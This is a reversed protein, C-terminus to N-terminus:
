AAEVYRDIVATLQDCYVDDVSKVMKISPRRTKWFEIRYTDNWMLKVKVAGKFSRGKVSFSLWGRNDETEEGSGTFNNSGWAMVAVFGKTGDVAVGNAIQDRITNAVVLNSM